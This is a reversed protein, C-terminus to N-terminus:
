VYGQAKYSAYGAKVLGALERFLQKDIATFTFCSKGQMRAKLEPSVADLLAPEMYIPMLHFSVSSKRAQVAGFFLPKKNKMLHRTDVYLETASDTKVVLKRAHPRLIASLETFVAQLEPM